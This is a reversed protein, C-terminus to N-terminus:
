GLMYGARLGFSPPRFFPYSLHHIVDRREDKREDHNVAYRVIVLAGDFEPSDPSDYPQHRGGDHTNGDCDGFISLFLWLHNMFAEICGHCSQMCYQSVITLLDTASPFHPCCKM